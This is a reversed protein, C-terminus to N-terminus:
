KTRLTQEESETNSSLLKENAINKHHLVFTDAAYASETKSKLFLRISHVLCDQVSHFVDVKLLRREELSEQFEEEFYAM